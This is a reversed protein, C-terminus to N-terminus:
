TLHGYSERLVEAVLDVSTQIEPPLKQYIGEGYTGQVRLSLRVRPSLAERILSGGLTMTTIISSLNPCNLYQPHRQFHGWVEGYESAADSFIKVFVLDDIFIQIGAQHLSALFLHEAQVLTGM